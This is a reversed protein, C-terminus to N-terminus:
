YNLRQLSTFSKSAVPVVRLAEIPRDRFFQLTPDEDRLLSVSQCQQDLRQAVFTSPYGYWLVQQEVQNIQITSIDLYTINQVTNFERLFSYHYPRPTSFLQYVLIRNKIAVCLILSTSHVAFATANKTEIIKSDLTSLPHELLSKLSQLRITRQKGALTVLLEGNSILAVHHVKKDILKISASFPAFPM